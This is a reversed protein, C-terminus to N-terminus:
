KKSEIEKELRKVLNEVDISGLDGDARSRASVTGNEVEKGGVILMYPTKKIESERIKLGLKESRDDLQARIGAALLKDRVDKAYKIFDDTITLIRAQVPALWLPFAGAYHEILVGFFREISGLLARHVMYPRHKQGDAGVYTMDFREPLNFDFQITTM